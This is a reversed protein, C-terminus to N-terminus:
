FRQRLYDEIESPKLENTSAGVRMYFQESNGEKLYIAIKSPRCEVVMLRKDGVTEFRIEVHILHQAGLSRKLLNGLHLNMEDDCAFGDDAIGIAEGEDNVGVVLTGGKTNLFAAITKLCAHEMTGDHKKQNRLNARLTSKFEVKESEGSSILKALKAINPNREPNREELIQYMLEYLKQIAESFHHIGYPSCQFTNPYKLANDYTRVLPLAAEAFQKELVTGHGRKSLDALKHKPSSNPWLKECIANIQRGYHITENDSSHRVKDAMPLERPASSKADTIEADRNKDRLAGLVYGLILCLGTRVSLVANLDDHGEAGEELGFYGHSFVFKGNRLYKLFGRADFYCDLFFPDQGLSDMLDCWTHELNVRDDLQQQTFPRPEDPFYFADEMRVLFKEDAVCDGFARGLLKGFSYTARVDNRDILLELKQAIIDPSRHHRETREPTNSIKWRERLDLIENWKTRPREDGVTLYEMLLDLLSRRSDDLEIRYVQDGRREFRLWVPGDAPLRELWEQFRELAEARRLEADFDPPDPDIPDDGMTPILTSWMSGDGADDWEIGPPLESEDILVPREQGLDPVFPHVRRYLASEFSEDEGLEILRQFEGLALGLLVSETPFLNFM